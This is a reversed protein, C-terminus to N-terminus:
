GPRASSGSSRALVPARPRAFASPVVLCVAAESGGQTVLIVRVRCRHLATLARATLSTADGGARATASCRRRHAVRPRVPVDLSSGYNSAVLTGPHTPHFTNKIVLPVGRERLLPAAGPHVVKAGWHSLELLEQFSMVDLSQAEPVLRPDATMVGDVDTWIEVLDAPLSVGLVAGSHDSGGRGLTTIESGM